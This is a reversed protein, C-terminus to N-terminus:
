TPLVPAAAAFWQGRETAPRTSFVALIPGIVSRQLGQSGHWVGRRSIGGMMFGIHSGRGNVPNRAGRLTRPKGADLPLHVGRNGQGVSQRGSEASEAGLHGQRAAVRVGSGMPGLQFERGTSVPDHGGHARPVSRLNKWVKGGRIRPAQPVPARGSLPFGGRGALGGPAALGGGIPLSPPLTTLNAILRRRVFFSAKGIGQNIRAVYRRAVYRRGCGFFPPFGGNGTQAGPVMRRDGARGARASSLALMAAGAGFFEALGAGIGPVVGRPAASRIDSGYKISRPHLRRRCACSKVWM